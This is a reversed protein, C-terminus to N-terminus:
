LVDLIVHCEGVILQGVSTILCKARSHMSLSEFYSTLDFSDILVLVPLSCADESCINGGGSQNPQFKCWRGVFSVSVDPGSAMGLGM